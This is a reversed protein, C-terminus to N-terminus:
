RSRPSARVPMLVLNTIQEIQTASVQTVPAVHQVTIHMWENRVPALGSRRTLERYQGSLCQRAAAPGPLVHWHYDERGAPWRTTVGSFFEEMM